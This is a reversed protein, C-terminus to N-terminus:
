EVGWRGRRVGGFWGWEGGGGADCLRVVGGIEVVGEGVTYKGASM